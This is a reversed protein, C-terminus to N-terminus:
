ANYATARAEIRKYHGLKFDVVEAEAAVIASIHQFSQRYEPYDPCHCRNAEQGTLSRWEARWFLPDCFSVATITSWLLGIGLLGICRGLRSGRGSLWGGWSIIPIALLFALIEFYLLFNFPKCSGQRNYASQLTQEQEKSPLGDSSLSIQLLKKSALPDINSIKSNGILVRPFRLVPIEGFPM